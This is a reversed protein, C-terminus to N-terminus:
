RCIWSLDVSVRITADVRPSVPVVKVLFSRLCPCGSGESSAARRLPYGYTSKEKNFIQKIYIPLQRKKSIWVFDRAAEVDNTIAALMKNSFNGKM